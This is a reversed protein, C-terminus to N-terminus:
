AYEGESPQPGEGSGDGDEPPIRCFHEVLVGVGVMVAGGAIQAVAFWLVSQDSRLAVLGLQEVVVGVHWGGIVAGTYATAQALVLTRAALLPNIMRRARGQRWRLVHVGLGLTIGVLLLVTLLSSLPLVPTPGGTRTILVDAIWGIVAAVVAAVVLPRLRLGSM